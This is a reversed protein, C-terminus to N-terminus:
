AATEGRVQVAFCKRMEPLFYSTIIRTAVPHLGISIVAFVLAATIKIRVFGGDVIGLDFHDQHCSRRARVQRQRQLRHVCALMHDDLFRGKQM